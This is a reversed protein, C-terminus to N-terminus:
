CKLVKASPPQNRAGMHLQKCSDTIVTESSIVGEKPKRTCWAGMHHMYM